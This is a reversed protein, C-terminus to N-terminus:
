YGPCFKSEVLYQFDYNLSDIYDIDESDLEFSFIDYNMKIRDANSSKPISIISKEYFWRLLVQVINKNYKLSLDYFEKHNNQIEVNNLTNLPSYAEIQIENERCFIFEEHLINIPSICLQDVMPVYNANRMIKKLHRVKFNSVGIARVVKQEYLEELSKWIDCLVDCYPWHILLLDLYDTNLQVLSREVQEMVQKRTDHNPCSTSNYFYFGRPLGDEYLKDGVKTEIFLDKRKLINQKSLINIANGIFQENNYGSATDILKVGSEYAAKISSIMTRETLGYTGLGMSPIEIGNNLIYKPIDEKM